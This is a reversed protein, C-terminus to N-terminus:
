FVRRLKGIVLNIMMIRCFCRAIEVNESAFNLCKGPDILVPDFVARFRENRDAVAQAMGAPTLNGSSRAM